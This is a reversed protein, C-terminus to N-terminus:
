KILSQGPFRFRSLPATIVLAGSESVAFAFPVVPLVSCFLGNEAVWGFGNFPFVGKHKMDFTM